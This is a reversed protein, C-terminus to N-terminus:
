IGVEAEVHDIRDQSLERHQGERERRYPSEQPLSCSTGGRQDTAELSTSGESERSRALPTGRNRQIEHICDQDVQAVSGHRQGNRRIMIAAHSFLASRRWVDNDAGM